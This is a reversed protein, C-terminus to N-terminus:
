LMLTLLSSSLPLIHFIKTKKGLQPDLSPSDKPQSSQSLPEWTVTTIGEFIMRTASVEPGEPQALEQIMEEIHSSTVAEVSTAV